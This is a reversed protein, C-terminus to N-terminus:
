TYSYNTNLTDEWSLISYSSAPLNQLVSSSYKVDADGNGLMNGSQKQLVVAGIVQANGNIHEMDDSIILGTFNGHANKLLANGTTNHLILIGTSPNDEDGFDPALWTSATLYVIGSMPLSPPTSTKYQDLSGSALGLVAEPTTVVGTANVEYTAPNPPKAPAIGNGGVSSSGSVTLTTGGTSVGYTGADGTLNGSSDHDRGDVVISGGFSLSGNSSIAGRVGPPVGKAVVAVVTRSVGNVTGVSTIRSSTCSPTTTTTCYTVSYSGDGITGSASSEDGLELETLKQDIGAEAAYFAKDRSQEITILRSEHFSLAYVSGGTILLITILLYFWILIMGKEDNRFLKM